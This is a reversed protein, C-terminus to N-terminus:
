QAKSNSKNILWVYLLIAILVSFPIVFSFKNSGNKIYLYENKVYFIKNPENYYAGTGYLNNSELIEVKSLNPNNEIIKAKTPTRLLILGAQQPASLTTNRVDQLIETMNIM